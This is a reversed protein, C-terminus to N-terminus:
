EGLLVEVPIYDLDFGFHRPGMIALGAETRWQLPAPAAIVSVKMGEELESNVVGWGDENMFILDPPLVAPEGYSWFAAINENKVHIELSVGDGKM